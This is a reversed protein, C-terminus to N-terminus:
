VQLFSQYSASPFSIILHAYWLSWSGARVLSIDHANVDYSNIIFNYFTSKVGYLAGDVAYCVHGHARNLFSRHKICIGLTKFLM